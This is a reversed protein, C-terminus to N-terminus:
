SDVMYSGSVQILWVMMTAHVLQPETCGAASNLQWGRLQGVSPDVVGDHHRPSVPTRYLWRCPKVIVWCKSWESGDHICSTAFVTFVQHGGHGWIVPYWEWCPM